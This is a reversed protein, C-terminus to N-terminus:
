SPKYLVTIIDGPIHALNSSQEVLIMGNQEVYSAFLERTMFSRFGKERTKADYLGSHHIIGYGHPKLIRRIDHLYTRIDTPNIHVFVDYSWIYDISNDQISELTGTTLFYKINDYNKFREKCLDLCKKSIDVLILSTAMNALTETWRGAGPGIELITSGGKIYKLMLDNIISQKWADPEVGKYRKAHLTWEEGSRSWDYDDWLNRNEKITHSPLDLSVLEKGSLNSNSNPIRKRHIWIIFRDVIKTLLQSRIIRMIRQLELAGQHERV